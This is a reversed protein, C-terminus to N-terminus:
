ATFEQLAAYAKAGYVVGPGGSMYVAVDIAETIEERTAGAKLAATTHALICGECKTHIGIGLAILEKHKVALAGEGSGAHHLNMFAGMLKPSAKAYAGIAENGQKFEEISSQKMKPEGETLNCASTLEGCAPLISLTSHDSLSKKSYDNL